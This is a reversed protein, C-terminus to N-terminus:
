AKTLELDLAIKIKDSVLLEGGGLVASFEMGFEKRDVTAEASLGALQNGNPDTAVGNFESDFTVRKTVGRMTLDGELAFEDGSEAKIGTSTFTLKPHQDAAFFDSTKLHQDRQANRTNISDVVAEATVSSDELTEGVQVTGAITEFNGRVKSVGAHRATFTFESHNPDINWTGPTLGNPLATM